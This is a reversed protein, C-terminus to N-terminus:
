RPTERVIEPARRHPVELPRAHRPRPDAGPQILFTYKLHSATGTFVLDIGPWLDSYVLSAYTKLGAKWQERPGKFYSIVAPTPDQGRPRAAPNAGVFDLKVAWRRRARDPEAPARLAVPGRTPPQASPGTIAITLGEPTFYVTTDRGQVYYAIRGDV